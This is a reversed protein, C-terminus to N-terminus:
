KSHLFTDLFFTQSQGQNNCCRNLRVRLWETLLGTRKCRTDCLISSCDHVDASSKSSPRQGLYACQAYSETGTEVNDYSVSYSGTGYNCCIGDGTTQFILILCVRIVKSYITYSLSCFFIKGYRDSITFEYLSDAVCISSLYEEGSTTLTDEAVALIVEDNCKNTIIWSTEGPYNDTNVRVVIRKESPDPCSSLSTPAQTPVLDCNGDFCVKVLASNNNLDIGNVQVSFLGESFYGGNGLKALLNSEMYSNGNGAKTVTVQNGAEVTGSNFGSKRNFVIFYDQDGNDVKIVVPPGDIDPNDLMSRLEGTYGGSSADISKHRNSFWGFQWLKAGNFCM